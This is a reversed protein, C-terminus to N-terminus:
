PSPFNQYYNYIGRKGGVLPTSSFYKNIEAVIENPLSPTVRQIMSFNRMARDEAIQPQAVLNRYRGYMYLDGRDIIGPRQIVQEYLKENNIPENMEHQYDPASFRIAHTRIYGDRVENGWVRQQVPEQKPLGSTRIKLNPTSKRSKRKPM